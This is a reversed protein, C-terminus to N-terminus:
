RNHIQISIPCGKYEMFAVLHLTSFLGEVTQSTMEKLRIEKTQRTYEIHMWYANLTFDIYM